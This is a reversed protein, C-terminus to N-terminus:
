LEVRMVSRAALDVPVGGFLASALRHSLSLSVVAERGVVAPREVTVIVQNALNEGLAAHVAEVAVGPDPNTAAVRAGQRAAGLLEIQVRGVVVVEVLTFLVLLVIPIVLAFEVTASGREQAGLEGSM